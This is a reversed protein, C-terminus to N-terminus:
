AKPKAKGKEEVDMTNIKPVRRSRKEEEIKAKLDSESTSKKM